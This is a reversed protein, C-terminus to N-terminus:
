KSSLSPITPLGSLKFAEEPSYKNPPTTVVTVISKRPSLVTSGIRGGSYVPQPSINILQGPVGSKPSLLSVTPQQVLSIPLTPQEGVPQIPTLQLLSISKNPAQQLPTQQPLLPQATTAQILSVQQFAAPQVMTSKFLSVPQFTTPQIPTTPLNVLPHFNGPQIGMTPLTVKPQFGIPMISIPQIVTPKALSMQQSLNIVPNILPPVTTQSVKDSLNVTSSIPQRVPLNILSIGATTPPVLTTRGMTGLPVAMNTLIIGQSGEKSKSM